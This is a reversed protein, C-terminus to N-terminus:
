VTPHLSRKVTFNSMQSTEDPPVYGDPIREEVLDGPVEVEDLGLADVMADHVDILEEVTLRVVAPGSALEVIYNTEVPSTLLSREVILRADM